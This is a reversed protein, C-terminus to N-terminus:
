GGSVEANEYDAEAQKRALRLVDEVSDSLTAGLGVLPELPTNSENQWIERLDAAVVKILTQATGITALKDLAQQKDM